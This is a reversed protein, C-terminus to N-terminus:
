EVRRSIQMNSKNYLIKGELPMYLFSLHLVFILKEWKIERINNLWVEHSKFFSSKTQHGQWEGHNKSINPGVWEGSM